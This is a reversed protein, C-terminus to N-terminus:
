RRSRTALELLSEPRRPSLLRRFAFAGAVLLAVAAVAATGRLPAPLATALSTPQPTPAGSPRTRVEAGPESLGRGGALPASRDASPPDDAVAMGADSGAAAPDDARAAGAVDRCRLQAEFLDHLPGSLTVGLPSVADAVAEVQETVVGAPDPLTIPLGTNPYLDTTFCQRPPTPPFVGVCADLLPRLAVIVDNVGLPAGPPVVFNTLGLAGTLTFALNCVARGTPEAPNPLEQAVARPGLGLSASLVAASIALYRWARPTAQRM